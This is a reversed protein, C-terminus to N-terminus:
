LNQYIYNYIERYTDATYHLGDTTQYGVSKLHSNCDIYKIASNLNSKITQNFSDIDDNMHAYSGETPNVSVFYVKAGSNTWSTINDNLYSIYNDVQYLDNVGMLIVLAAGEKIESEINPIGTSKMWNLGMSGKCSWVDDTGVINKMGVTRSDGVFIVSNIAGTTQGTSGNTTSGSIISQPTKGSTNVYESEKGLEVVAEANNWCKALNFSKDALSMVLNVIFPVMFLIVLAMICNTIIPKYKKEEPNTMLKIFNIALAVMCLIPGIIQIMSLVTKVINLLGAIGVSGCAEIIDSSVREYDLLYFM